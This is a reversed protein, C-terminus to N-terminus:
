DAEGAAAGPLRPDTDSIAEGVAFDFGVVQSRNSSVRCRYVLRFWHGGSRFAAGDAYLMDGDVRTEQELYAIVREPTFRSDGTAIQEMAEVGCLQELRSGPALGDLSARAIGDLAAGSLMTGAHTLGLPPGAVTDPPLPSPGSAAGAPAAPLPAVLEIILAPPSRAELKAPPRSMLLLMAAVLMAHAVASAVLGGHGRRRSVTFGHRM